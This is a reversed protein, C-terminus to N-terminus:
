TAYPNELFSLTKLLYDFTEVWKAPSSEVNYFLVSFMLYM